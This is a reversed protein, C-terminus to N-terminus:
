DLLCGAGSCKFQDTSVRIPGLSEVEVIYSNEDLGILTGEITTTGSTLVVAGGFNPSIVPELCGEGECTVEGTDIRLEGAGTALVYQGDAIEILNGSLKASGDFSTLVMPSPAIELRTSQPCASGICFVGEAPITVQGIVTKIKFAGNSFEVLQGTVGEGDDFKITVTEQTQSAGTSAVIALFIALAFSKGIKGNELLIRKMKNVGVQHNRENIM